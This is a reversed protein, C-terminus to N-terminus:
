QEMYAALSAPQHKEEIHSCLTSPCRFHAIHLFPDIQPIISVVDYADMSFMQIVGGM